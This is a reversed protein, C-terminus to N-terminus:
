GLPKYNAQIDVHFHVRESRLSKRIEFIEQAFFNNGESLPPLFDGGKVLAGSRCWGGHCGRVFFVVLGHPQNLALFRSVYSLAARMM